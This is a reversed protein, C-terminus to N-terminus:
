KRESADVKLEERRYREREGDCLVVASAPRQVGDRLLGEYYNQTM